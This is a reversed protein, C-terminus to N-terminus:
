STGLERRYADLIQATPISTSLLPYVSEFARARRDDPSLDRGLHRVVVPEGARTHTIETTPRTARWRTM